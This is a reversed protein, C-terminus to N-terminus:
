SLIKAGLGIVLLVIALVLTATKAAGPSFGFAGTLTFILGGVTTALSPWATPEHRMWALGHIGLACVALIAAVVWPLRSGQNVQSVM